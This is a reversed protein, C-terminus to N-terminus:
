LDIAHMMRVANCQLSVTLTAATSWDETWLSVCLSAPLLIVRAWGDAQENFNEGHIQLSNYPGGRWHLYIANDSSVILGVVEVSAGLCLPKLPQLHLPHAQIIGQAASARTTFSKRSTRRAPSSGVLAAIALPTRLLDVPVSKLKLHQRVFGGGDGVSKSGYRM